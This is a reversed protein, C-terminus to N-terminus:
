VPVLPPPMMPSCSFTRNARSIDASQRLSKLDTSFIFGDLQDIPAGSTVGQELLEAWEEAETIKFPQEAVCWKVGKTVTSWFLDEVLRGVTPGLSMGYKSAFAHKQQIESSGLLRKQHDTHM